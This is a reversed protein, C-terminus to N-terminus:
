CIVLAGNASMAAWHAVNTDDWVLSGIMQIDLRGVISPDNPDLLVGQLELDVVLQGCERGNLPLCTANGRVEATATLQPAGGPGLAVFSLVTSSGSVAGETLDIVLELEQDFPLVVKETTAIDSEPPFDSGKLILEGALGSTHVRIISEDIRQVNVSALDPNIYRGSSPLFTIGAVANTAAFLLASTAIIKLRKKMGNMGIANRNSGTDLKKIISNKM